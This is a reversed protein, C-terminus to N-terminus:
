LAAPMEANDQYRSELGSGLVSVSFNRSAKSFSFFGSDNPCPGHSPLKDGSTAMNPSKDGLIEPSAAPTNNASYKLEHVSTPSESVNLSSTDSTGAHVVEDGQCLPYANARSMRSSASGSGSAEIVSISHM